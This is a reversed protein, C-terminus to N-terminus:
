LYDEINRSIHDVARTMLYGLAEELPMEHWLRHYDSAEFRSAARALSESGGQKRLIGDVACREAYHEARDSARTCADMVEQMWRQGAHRAVQRHVRAPVTGDRTLLGLLERERGEPLVPHAEGSILDDLHLRDGDQTELVQCAKELTGLTPDVLELTREDPSPGTPPTM